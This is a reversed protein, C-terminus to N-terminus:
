FPNGLTFFVKMLPEKTQDSRRQPNLNFGFDLRAPGVPTQYRLGFGVNHKFERLHIDPISAFVNGTDYFLAGGVGSIPFVRLPVRYEFNGITMVNGGSPNAEDLGFGRLTTSGGAYYRETPPLKQTQGPAFQNTLGYPHNWGFRFSTAFVGNPAPSYFSSQNFFSTFSLESGVARNAVQFTTTSFSGSSPNLPDNRRDQIYSVGFRTIQCIKCPGQESPLTQAHPNVGIDGINAAQYSSSFVLNAQPSFRKLVQLAFDIRNVSYLPRQAHEVFTSAFGDLNRNFLRPERYTSQVLRERTSARTRLSISRDLGFLNTHSIEITGRVREFEQYGIGYTLQIPKADEVQILLNRVGPLNQQLPVISVFNFLGTAYLRQQSVLIAEPNYPTNPYLNSNRHIIKEKTLTNGTVIINGIKYADGETIQFTVHMGNNEQARNVTPEVRVDPYGMSYYLQTITARAQDVAVPTYTDGEKLQIKDRIEQEKVAYNGLITVFDVPLQMGEQIQIVIDVIHEHEQYTGQVTTGEFGANRYMAQITQVDQDLMERSFVGRSFLSAERVKMRARIDKTSFHMNGEIRVAEIRHSIGPSIPYKIQIANDLPAEITESAVMAEFYGRQQMYRDIAVRGEEVLDPDVTGEEYVPVLEELKQKPINFGETTVLTFQGPQITFNLDVTHTAPVYQQQANVRTNLFGLKSFKARLDSITKDLRASSFDNGAKFDLTELLEMQSFTQEGGQIRINAVKAKPGPEVHFTVTALRTSDDFETQPTVVAEFYGQAKLVDTTEQQIRDIASTGFKEGFPLRVYSSLSRELLNNPTLRFNGFFFFVRVRFTLNTGGEPASEADVEIYSYRGTNYLAQISTRVNEVTIVEGIRLPIVQLDAQSDAGSLAINAVRTGSYQQQAHALWPVLLVLILGQVKM